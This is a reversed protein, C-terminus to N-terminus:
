KVVSLGLIEWNQMGGRYWKLKEPPYGFNLLTKINEPSQGCWMGNCFLVLTKAESYDFVEKVTGATLAEDVSIEDEGAKLKVGFEETMTTIIDQTSTGSKPNLRTFPINVAGPITGRKVWNETRSDIVKINKDGKAMKYIYKIVELEGLTAVKPALVIPQICFPPCPRSTLAFNSDVENGQNQTRMITYNKGDLSFEFKKLNETIGVEIEEIDAPVETQAFSSNFMIGFTLSIFLVLYQM